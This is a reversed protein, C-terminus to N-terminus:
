RAYLGLLKSFDLDIQKLASQDYEDEECDELLDGILLDTHCEHSVRTRRKITASGKFSTNTQSMDPEEFSFAARRFVPISYYLFPDNQKLLQLDETSLTSIDIEIPEPHSPTTTKQVLESRSSASSPGAQAPTTTIKTSRANCM